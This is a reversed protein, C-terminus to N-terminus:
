PQLRLTVSRTERENVTIRTASRRLDELMVPDQWDGSTVLDSAADLALLYYSGPPLSGFRFEQGQRQELRLWQSQRYWKSSDTSFLLVAVADAPQGRSKTVTGTITAAGSSVVIEVGNFDQEKLGFDFPTDLADGGGVRADKLYWGDTPVLTVMRRLGTVGTVVFSGDPNKTLGAAGSGIIFSEDFDTPFPWVTMAGPVAEAGDTSIRGRLTAGPTTRIYVPSPEVDTITLRQMGFEMRPLMVIGNEVKPRLGLATSTAQVVYDGPPVGEFVFAGDSAVPAARPEAIVGGSRESVALLVAGHIPQGTSELAVGAVRHSSERRFALDIAEVDGRDVIVPLASAVNLVGPYYNPASGDEQAVVLYRGRLRGFIRYVGRDDSQQMGLDPVPLAARRDGVRKIQLLQIRASQVPDGYEDFITGTIARVGIRTVGAPAIQQGLDLTDGPRLRVTTWMPSWEIRYEGEDLGGIRFEGRDDTTATMLPRQTNEGMPRASVSASVVPTGAPDVLRGTIAAGRKLPVRMEASVGRPATIKVTESVYGAKTVTATVDGALDLLVRGDEDTFSSRPPSALFQLRAHRIASKTQADVVVVPLHVSSSPQQAYLSPSVIAWVIIAAARRATM